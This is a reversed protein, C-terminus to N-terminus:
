DVEEHAALRDLLEPMRELVSWEEPTVEHRIADALWSSRAMRDIRLVSRGFETLAIVSVRADSDSATREVYGRDELELVSRSQGQHRVGRRRALDAITMPGERDLYGLTASHAPALADTAGRTRRVLRGVAERLRDALDDAADM